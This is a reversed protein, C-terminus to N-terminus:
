MEPATADTALEPMLPQRLPVVMSAFDAVAIINDHEDLV